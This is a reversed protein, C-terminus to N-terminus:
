RVRYFYERAHLDPAKSSTSGLYVWFKDADIFHFTTADKGTDGAARLAISLYTDFSRRASWVVTSENCFLVKYPKRQTSGAFPRLEGSVPVEIDPMLARLEHQDFSLTMHGVLAQLFDVTKNQLKAHEKVFAMTAKADSKWTGILRRDCSSASCCSSVFLAALTFLSLAKGLASPAVESSTMVDWREFLGIQPRLKCELELPKSFL